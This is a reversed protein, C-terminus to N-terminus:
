YTVVSVADTTFNYTITLIPAGVAIGVTGNAGAGIHTTVTIPSSSGFTVAPIKSGVSGVLELVGESINRVGYSMSPAIASGSRGRIEFDISTLIGTYKQIFYALNIGFRWAPAGGTLKDSSLIWCTAPDRGDNPLQLPGSPSEITGTVIINTESLAATKVYGCLDATTDTLYDVLITSKTSDVLCTGTANAQAQAAAQALADAAIQTGAFYTNAAISIPVTTGSEGTPCNNRQYPQNVIAVNGFQITTVAFVGTQPPTGISLTIDTETNNTASSTQRVQVTDYQNVTGAASTFAGGNISYQGASISIIAPADNGSVLITNSNIITSLPVNIQPAFSFPNVTVIADTWNLCVNKTVTGGGPKNFTFTPADNGVYNTSPVYTAIGTSSNYSATSHAGNPTATVDTGVISYSDFANWDTDDFPYLILLGGDAEICCMVENYYKNYFLVIKKGQSYALSLVQKFYKSMKGTISYIGGTTIEFIDSRHPDVMCGWNKDICFAEKALGLGVNETAYRGNNLLKESIAVGTLQDNLQQYAINVPVYFVNLEQLLVLIDGRQWAAQIAGFNSSTQGNGEGYIDAPYFRTLGNNKSGLIYPQSTITIAKRETQELEDYYSRPRGFSAYASAYFDSYNLDNALVDIPPNTYPLLADDYQRTKYYAGGDTITGSLTDFLGNTITFREGIEYWITGNQVTSVTQATPAPSYLRLFVNKGNLLTNNFTASKEVKVIYNGSDYGFVSLNVCPNNIFVKVGSDIYYHLTCRDGPAFDYSLITNVGLDAYQSTFLNLPNLSIALINGTSTLDGFTKPLIDWSQGNYTVYDGTNYPGGAGLNITDTPLSPTTIQYTDGTTGVNVALTPTNTHADWGGKYVLPTGLVDLVKTVPPKTIMWQYDVAGVPAVPNNIQWSMQIAQGNVQAYSPTQFKFNNTTDLPFFRGGAGDRVSLAAQYNTNDLFTPISNAVTAGAFHLQITATQLGFYPPGVFKVAISGDLNPLFNSGPILQSFSGVAAGLNGDQAMPVTYTYTLTNTANRIDAIVVTFVDGTHPVGFYTVIMIRKHNGAGSGSEGPFVGTIVLPNPYTGAPIDINPNYGTAGITVDINPRQYGVSLDHLAVINGNLANVANAPWIYDYALDTQTPTVPVKQENNYFVFSYLNTAPDYAEYIETPVDVTTHPLAVVYSRDVSKIISFIELAFRVAVNLTTARISGINVSVIIYNNQTVDAGATPTNQQYPVIRKSWTSWASYNFDANVYQCNFQPLNGFLYNAPQGPDSGYVGTIPILCQPKLLSLDEALVTGYGGTRLTNLNTYGVESGKAVWIYYTENILIGKVYSQPDSPLLQVGGSDTKDTFIVTETQTNKDYIGIQCNGFSNYRHFIILGVDEAAIGGICKNIGAPMSQTILTNSEPNSGVGQEGPQTGGVRFNYAGIWEDKGVYEPADNQNMSGNALLKINNIATM